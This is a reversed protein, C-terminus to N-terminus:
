ALQNRLASVDLIGPADWSGEPRLLVYPDIGATIPTPHAPLQALMEVYKFDSFLIDARNPVCSFGFREWFETKDARAHVLLSQYGKLQCLSKSYSILERALGFGRFEKRVALRELKAFNAFYRIRMCGAPEQRISGLVQTASFDNGDFEEDFPCHEEGMYVSSRISVLQMFETFSKVTRVNVPPRNNQKDERSIQLNPAPVGFHRKFHHFSGGNAECKHEFGLAVLFKAGEDTAARALFDVTRYTPTQLKEMVLALAPTLNSRAHLAWVYIAAPRQHQGTLYAPLPNGADLDGALLAERGKENLMLFAVFGSPQLGEPGYKATRGIAWFSDPNSRAVRQIADVSALIPMDQRAQAILKSIQEPFPTFVRLSECLEHTKLYDLNRVSLSARRASRTARTSFQEM